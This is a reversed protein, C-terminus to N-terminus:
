LGLLKPNTINQFTKKKINHFYSFKVLSLSEYQNLCNIYKDIILSYIIDNSYPELENLAVQSKLEFVYEQFSFYQDTSINPIFSIITFFVCFLYFTSL